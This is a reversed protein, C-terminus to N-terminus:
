RVIADAAREIARQREVNLAQQIRQLRLQAAQRERRRAADRPEPGLPDGTRSLLRHRQRYAFILDVGENWLDAKTPDTPRQGLAEVILESPRLREHAVESRRLQLLRDDILALEAREAGSLESPQRSEARVRDALPEREAELRDLQKVTM